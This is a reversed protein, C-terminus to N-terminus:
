YRFFHGLRKKSARKELQESTEELKVPHFLQQQNPLPLQKMVVNINELMGALSKDLKLGQNIKQYLHHSQSLGSQIAQYFRSIPGKLASIHDFVPGIAEMKVLMQLTLHSKLLEKAFQKQYQTAKYLKTNFQSYSHSKVNKKNKRELYSRKKNQYQYAVRLLADALRSLAFLIQHLDEQGVAFGMRELNEGPSAQLEIGLIQLVSQDMQRVLALADQTDLRYQLIYQLSHAGEIVSNESFNANPYDEAIEQLVSLSKNIAQEANSVTEEINQIMPQEDM